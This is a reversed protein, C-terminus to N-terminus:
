RMEMSIIRGLDDFDITISQAFKAIIRDASPEDYPTGNWRLFGEIFVRHNLEYEQIADLSLKLFSAADFSPTPPLESFATWVVGADHPVRFICYDQEAIGCAVVSLLRGNNRENLKLQPNKLEALNFREGFDRVQGALAVVEDPFHNVNDWGWLWTDSVNSETGVLQLPFVKGGFRIEGASFQLEWDRDGIIEACNKQIALSRGLCASFVDRLDSRNLNFDSLLINERSV